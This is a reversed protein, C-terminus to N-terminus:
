RLSRCTLSLNFDALRLTACTAAQRVWVVNPMAVARREIEDLTGFLLDLETFRAVPGPVVDLRFDGLPIFWGERDQHAIANCAAAYRDVDMAPDPSTVVLKSIRCFGNPHVQWEPRWILDPTLHECHYIRGAPFCAAPFRVTRFEAVETQGSVTVPRSFAVPPEVPLGTQELSAFTADADECAIVLGNLGFPSNLVDQRQLGEAPVGVLELYPGPTMMLHNISGLSHHGRPTLRFGLITFAVAAADMDRMTNIVVHDLGGFTSRSVADKM